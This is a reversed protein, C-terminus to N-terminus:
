ISSGSLSIVPSLSLTVIINWKLPVHIAHLSPRAAYMVRINPDKVCVRNILGIVDFDLKM